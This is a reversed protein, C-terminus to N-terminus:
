GSVALKRGKGAEVQNHYVELLERLAPLRKGSEWIIKGKHLILARSCIELGLSLDHTTLVVTKGAAKAQVLLAQLVAVAQPDLGTYPEDLLLLDPDHLLTRALAIRQEMGRSFARVPINKWDVLGVRELLADIRARLDSLGFVKGYFLLNELPTLDPYLFSEHSLFGIRRRLEGGTTQGGFLRLTGASPELVTALVRLLTTKGAGNPGFIAVTEGAAVRCTIGSLVPMWAFHKVLDQADVVWADVSGGVM